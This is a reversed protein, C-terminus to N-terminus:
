AGRHNLRIQPNSTYSLANKVEASSPPTHDAERGPRKVGPFSGRTSIPYSVPHPGLAPRSVTTFVFFNGARGPSSSGIMRPFYKFPFRRLIQNSHNLVECSVGSCYISKHGLISGPVM